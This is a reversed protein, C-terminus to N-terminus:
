IGLAGAVWLGLVVGLAVIVVRWALSLLLRGFVVILIVVIVTALLGVPSTLPGGFLVAASPLM